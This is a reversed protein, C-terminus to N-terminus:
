RVPKARYQCFGKISTKFGLIESMSKWEKLIFHDDNQADKMWAKIEEQIDKWTGDREVFRILHRTLSKTVKIWDPIAEDDKMHKKIMKLFEEDTLFGRDNISFFIGAVRAEVPNEFGAKRNSRRIGIKRKSM